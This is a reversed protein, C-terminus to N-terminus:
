SQCSRAPRLLQQKPLLQVRLSPPKRGPMTLKWKKCSLCCILTGNRLQKRSLGPVNMCQPEFPPGFTLKSQRPPTKSHGGHGNSIGQPGRQLLRPHQKQLKEQQCFLKLMRSNCNRNFRKSQKGTIMLCHLNFHEWRLRMIQTFERSKTPMPQKPTACLRISRFCHELFEHCRMSGASSAFPSFIWPMAPWGRVELARLRALKEDEIEQRLKGDSASAVEKEAAARASAALETAHLIEQQHRHQARASEQLEAERRDATAEIASVLKRHEVIASERAAIEADIEYQLRAEVGRLTIAASEAASEATAEAAQLLRRHRQAQQELTARSEQERLVATEELHAQKQRHERLLAVHEQDSVATAAM